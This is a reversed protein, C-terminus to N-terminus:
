KYYKSCMFHKEERTIKIKIDCSEEREEKYVTDNRKSEDKIHSVNEVINVVPSDKIIFFLFLFFYIFCTIHDFQVIFLFVLPFLHSTLVYFHNNSFFM